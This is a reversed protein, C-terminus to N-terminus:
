EIGGVAQRTCCKENKVTLRQGSARRFSIAEIGVGASIRYWSFRMESVLTGSIMAVLAMQKGIAQMATSKLNM